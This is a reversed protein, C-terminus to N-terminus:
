RDPDPVYNCKDPANKRQSYSWSSNSIPGYTISELVLRNKEPVLYIKQPKETLAPFSVNTLPQDIVYGHQPDYTAIGTYIVQEPGKTDAWFGGTIITVSLDKDSHPRLIIESRGPKLLPRDDNDYGDDSM